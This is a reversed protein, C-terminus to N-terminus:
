PTVAALDLRRAQTLGVLVGVVLLGAIAVLAASPGVTVWLVGFCVTSVM